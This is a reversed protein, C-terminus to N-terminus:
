TSNTEDLEELLNNKSLYVISESLVVKTYDDKKEGEKKAKQNCPYVDRSDM